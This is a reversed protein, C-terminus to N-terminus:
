FLPPFRKKKLLDEVRRVVDDAEGAPLAPTLKGAQCWELLTRLRRVLDDTLQEDAHARVFDSNLNGMGFANGHDFLRPRQKGTKAAGWNNGSRDNHNIVTDFLAVLLQDDESFQNVPPQGLPTMDQWVLILAANVEGRTTPVVRQVTPAVLDSCGLLKAILWAAEERQVKKRSEESGNEPKAMVHIGGELEFKEKPVGHGGGGPEPSLHAVIAAGRMSAELDALTDAGQQEENKM